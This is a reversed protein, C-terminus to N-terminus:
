QVFFAQVICKNNDWRHIVGVESCHGLHHNLIAPVITDFLSSVIFKLPRIELVSEYHIRHTRPVTSRNEGDQTGPSISIVPTQYITYGKSGWAVTGGGGAGAGSTTEQREFGHPGLLNSNSDDAPDECELHQCGNVSAM